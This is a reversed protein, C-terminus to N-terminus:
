EFLSIARGMAPHATIEKSKKLSNIDLGYLRYHDKAYKMSNGGEMIKEASILEKKM